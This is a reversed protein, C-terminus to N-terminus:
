NLRIVHLLECIIVYLVYELFEGNPRLRNDKLGIIPQMDTEAFFFLHLLGQILDVDNQRDAERHRM